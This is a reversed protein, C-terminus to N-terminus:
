LNLRVSTSFFSMSTFCLGEKRNTRRFLEGRGQKQLGRHGVDEQHPVDVVGAHHAAAGHLDSHLLDCLPRVASRSRDPGDTCVCLGGRRGFAAVAVLLM